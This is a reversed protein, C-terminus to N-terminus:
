REFLFARRDLLKEAYPAPGRNSENHPLEVVM